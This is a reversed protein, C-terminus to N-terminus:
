LVTKQTEVRRAARSRKSLLHSQLALFLIGSIGAVCVAKWEEFEVGADRLFYVLSVSVGWGGLISTTAAEVQKQKRGCVYAFSATLATCSAWFPVVTRGLLTPAGNWPLSNCAQCADFLMYTVCAGTLAGMTHSLYRVCSVAFLACAVGFLLSGVAVAECNGYTHFLHLACAAGACFSAVAVSTKLVVHGFLGVVLSAGLMLYPAVRFSADYTTRLEILSEHAREAICTTNTLNM